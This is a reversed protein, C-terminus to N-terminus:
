GIQGYIVRAEQVVEDRFYQSLENPTRLDVRHHLMEGLELEMRTLDFLGIRRQPEFEVLLDVDSDPRQNGHLYSGFLRLSRIGNSDCFAKLSVPALDLSRGQGAMGGLVLNGDAM